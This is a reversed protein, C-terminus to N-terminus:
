GGRAPPQDCPSKLSVRTVHFFRQRHQFGGLSHLQNAQQLLGPHPCRRSQTLTAFHVTHSGILLVGLIILAWVDTIGLSFEQSKARAAYFLHYGGLNYDEEGPVYTAIAAGLDTRHKDLHEGMSKLAETFDFHM